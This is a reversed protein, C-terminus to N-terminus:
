NKTSLLKHDNDLAKVARKVTNDGRNIMEFFQSYGLVDRAIFAKLYRLLLNRSQNIYYWRAPVGKKAAYAVFNELLTQDRPLIRLLDDLSSANRALDRYKDAIDFAYEQLLGHNMVNVYYSTYGTTDEPVFIDPMIGGGGFVVRGGITEFKKSKDLKASDANFLEGRNYRRAIDMDYDALDGMKYDKQICRGSPTYYRAVTLRLASSDPLVTQTQVLGKGFSRRGVILARDNDQMAGAFIESSSASIENILVVLDVDQFSGTGDSVAITENEPKRGKTFVIMRGKPLFENAMLIPQDLFGGTNGRLDIVYRKAGKDRLEGLADVFERYTTEAFKSVRIFGTTPNIMYVCDVSKVPVEGRTVTFILPKVSSNRKVELKVKSDAEGRLSKFVDENTVNAGSLKKGNAKLIRDGTMLGVKEAPGGAIVELIIVSDNSIQFSVGVGSFSGNLEDNIADLESKDIYVSHPDLTALLGPLSKDLISDVDIEDVYENEIISMMTRLKEEAPSMSANAVYRGMFLGGAVGVALVLPLVAFKYKETIKSM